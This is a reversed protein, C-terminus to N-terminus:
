RRLSATWGASQCGRWPPHTAPAPLHASALLCAPSILVLRREKLQGPRSPRQGAGASLAAVHQMCIWEQLAPCGSCRAPWHPSACAPAAPVPAPPPAPLPPHV